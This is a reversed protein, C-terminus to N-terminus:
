NCNGWTNVATCCRLKVATGCGASGDCLFLDGVVCAAPDASLAEFKIPAQTPSNDTVRVDLAVCAGTASTCEAVVGSGATTTGKIGISIGSADVAIGGTAGATAVIATSSANTSTVVRVGPSASNTVDIVPSSTNGTAVICSGSQGGSKNCLLSLANTATTTGNITLTGPGTIAVAGTLTPAAACVLSGSGTGCTGGAGGGINSAEAREAEFRDRVIQGATFAAIVVLALAIHRLAGHM